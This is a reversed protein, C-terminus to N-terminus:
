AGLCISVCRAAFRERSVLVDGGRSRSLAVPLEEDSSVPFRTLSSRLFFHSAIAICRPRRARQGHVRAGVSVAICTAHAFGSTFRVVTGHGSRSSAVVVAGRCWPVVAGRCWPVVAGRCWPVVAGRCRPVVAGRCWAVVGGRWWPVVAGGSGSVEVQASANARPARVLSMSQRERTRRVSRALLVSGESPIGGRLPRPPTARPRRACHACAAHRAGCPLECEVTDSSRAPAGARCGRERARRSATRSGACPRAVGARGRLDTATGM